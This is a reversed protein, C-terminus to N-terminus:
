DGFRLRTYWAGGDDGLSCLFLFAPLEGRAMILASPPLFPTFAELGLFCSHGSSWSATSPPCELPTAPALGRIKPLLELMASPGPKRDPFRGAGCWGMWDHARTGTVLPAVRRRRTLAPCLETGLCVRSGFLGRVCALSKLQTEIGMGSFLSLFRISCPQTTLSRIRLVLVGGGPPCLAARPYGQWWFFHEDSLTVLSPAPRHQGLAEQGPVPRRAFSPRGFSTARPLVERACDPFAGDSLIRRIASASAKFM